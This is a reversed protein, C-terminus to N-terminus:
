LAKHSLMRSGLHNGCIGEHIEKLVYKVESNTLCKLLPETHGRRYLIGGILTYPASHVKVKRSLMKDVPLSRNRLYQIVGTAWKPDTSEEEIEMLEQKPIISPETQVIVENAFTKIEPGTRSGM